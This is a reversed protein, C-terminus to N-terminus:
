ITIKKYIVESSSHQSYSLTYLERIHESSEAMYLQLTIESAYILLGDKTKDALLRETREFQYDLM